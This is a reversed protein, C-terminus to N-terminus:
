KIRQWCRWRQTTPPSAASVVGAVLEPVRSISIHIAETEAGWLAGEGARAGDDLFPFDDSVQDRIVEGIPVEMLNRRVEPLGIESKLEAATKLPMLMTPAFRRALEAIERYFERWTIGERDSGTM